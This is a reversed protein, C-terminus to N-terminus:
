VLEYSEQKIWTDRNAKLYERLTHKGVYKKDENANFANEEIGTAIRSEIKVLWDAYEPALKGSGIFAQKHKDISIRKYTIKRGLIETM